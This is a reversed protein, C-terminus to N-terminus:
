IGNNGHKVFKIFSVAELLSKKIHIMFVIIINRRLVVDEYM